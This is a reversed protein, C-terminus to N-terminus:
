SLPPRGSYRLYWGGQRCKDLKSMVGREERRPCRKYIVAQTIDFKVKM